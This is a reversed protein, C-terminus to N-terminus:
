SADGCPRPPPPHKYAVSDHCACDCLAVCYARRARLPRCGVAYCVYKRGTERGVSPPVLLEGLGLPPPCGNENRVARGKGKGSKAKGAM